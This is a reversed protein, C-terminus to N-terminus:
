KQLMHVAQGFVSSDSLFEVKVGDSLYEKEIVKSADYLFSEVDARNYPITLSYQKQGESLKDEIAKLLENLGAKTKASIMVGKTDLGLVNVQEAKDMKNYVTIVPTDKAELSGLVEHVVQMQEFCTKSSADVVHLIINANVAEELTSRFADVLDHPLKHIFGVTDTILIEQGSELTIKRTVPDLTAFLKDEATVDSDSLANFLTSKGANTYGALAVVPIGQKDRKSQRLKRQEKMHKIQSELEFIRRRIRRRDIELKKEGPGRTGIGGTQRSLIVGMGQLRPLRYKLQALEVQMRGESSQARGAFIDLILATRDIVRIGLLQELNRSQAGTLEDDTICLTAELTHCIHMIVSAKGKGIYYAPDPISRAQTEIHVVEAGATKALEALESLSDIGNRADRFGILVAKEVTPPEFVPANSKMIAEDIERIRDMLLALPLQNLSQVNYAEVSKGDETIMGVQMGCFKGEDTIGIACMADLVSNKLTNIDIGSLEPTGKPHTHICRVGSLRSERRLTRLQPFAVSSADGISVDMITGDRGISIAIERKIAHSIEIMEIAVDRSLFEDRGVRIDYIKELRDLVSQRINETNGKVLIHGGIKRSVRLM